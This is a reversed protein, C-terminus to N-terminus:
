YIPTYHRTTYFDPVTNYNIKTVVQLHNIFGIVLGFGTKTVLVRSLINLYSFIYSSLNISCELPHAASIQAIFQVTGKV